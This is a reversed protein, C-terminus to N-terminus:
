FMETHTFSASTSQHYYGTYHIHRKFKLDHDVIIGLDKVENVNPLVMNNINYKFQKNSHGLQLIVCKKASVSLQWKLSWDFLADLGCQSM